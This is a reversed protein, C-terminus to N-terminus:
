SSKDDDLGLDDDDSGNPPVGGWKEPNHAAFAMAVLTAAVVIASFVFVVLALYKAPGAEGALVLLAAIALVGCSTWKHLIM